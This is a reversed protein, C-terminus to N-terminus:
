SRIEQHSHIKMEKVPFRLISKSASMISNLSQSVECLGIQIHNELHFDSRAVHLIHEHSMWVFFMLDWKESSVGDHIGSFTCKRTEQEKKFFNDILVDERIRHFLKVIHLICFYLLFPITNPVLLLIYQITGLIFM